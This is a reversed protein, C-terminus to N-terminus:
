RDHAEGDLAHDILLTAIGFTSRLADALERGDRRGALAGYVIARSVPAQGALLIAQAAREVPGVVAHGEDELAEVMHAVEAPDAAAVLVVDGPELDPLNLARTTLGKRRM